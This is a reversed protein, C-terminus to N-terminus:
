KKILKYKEYNLLAEEVKLLEDSMFGDAHIEYISKELDEIGYKEVQGLVVSGLRGFELLEEALELDKKDNSAKEAANKMRNLLQTIHKSGKIFPPVDKVKWALTEYAQNYKLIRLQREEEEKEIREQAKSDLELRAYIDNQLDKM